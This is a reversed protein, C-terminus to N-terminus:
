SFYIECCTYYPLAIGTVPWPPRYLQSIDLSGCKRSLWSVSPVPATLRICRFAKVGGLLNRTSIGTLPQTLGMAMTHSSPNPWNFVGIAEDPISGM